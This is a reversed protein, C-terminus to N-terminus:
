VFVEKRVMQHGDGFTRIVIYEDTFNVLPYDDPINHEDHYALLATCKSMCDELFALTNFYPFYSMSLVKTHVASVTPRGYAVFLVYHTPTIATVYCGYSPEHFPVPYPFDLEGTSNYKHSVARAIKATSININFPVATDSTTPGLIRSLLSCSFIQESDYVNDVIGYKQCIALIDLERVVSHLIRKDASATNVFDVM